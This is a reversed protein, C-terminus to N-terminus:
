STAPATSSSVSAAIRAQEVSAAAGCTSDRADIKVAFDNAGASSLRRRRPDATGMFYGTLLVNGASDVAIGSGIVTRGASVAAGCTSDRPLSSSWSSTAWGATLLPRRWLRHQYCYLERHCCTVPATSAIGQANEIAWDGFRRSRRAVRADLKVM